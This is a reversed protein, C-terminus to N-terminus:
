ISVKKLIKKQNEYKHHATAYNSSVVKQTRLDIM